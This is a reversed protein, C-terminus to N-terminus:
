DKRIYRECYKEPCRGLEYLRCIKIGNGSFPAFCERKYCDPPDKVIYDKYNKKKM